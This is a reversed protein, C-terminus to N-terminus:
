RVPLALVSSVVNELATTSQPAFWILGGIVAIAALIPGSLSREKKPRRADRYSIAM